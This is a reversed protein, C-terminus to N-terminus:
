RGAASMAGLGAFFLLALGLLSLGGVVLVLLATTGLEERQRDPHATFAWKDVVVTDCIMDHLAQKRETFGAMLFGVGLILGSPIMAFYRAFGRWFGTGEGNGRVVKIGIAMKGPTAQQVSAYFWGYYCATLIFTALQVVLQIATIGGKGLGGGIGLAAGMLGGIVAGLLSIILGDIFYAALRKRFGAHVIEGGLHVEDDRLLPASPPAYPSRPEILTCPDPGARALVDGPTTPFGATALSPRAASRRGPHAVAAM